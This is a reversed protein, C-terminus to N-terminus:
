SKGVSRQPGVSTLETVRNDLLRFVLNDTTRSSIGSGEEREGVAGRAEGAAM